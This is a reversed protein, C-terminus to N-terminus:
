QEAAAIYFDLFRQGVSSMLAAHAHLDAFCPHAACCGRLPCPAILDLWVQGWRVGVGRFQIQNWGSVKVGLNARVFM